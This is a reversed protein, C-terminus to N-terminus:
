TSSEEWSIAWARATALHKQLLEAAAQPQGALLAKTIQVKAALCAQEGLALRALLYALDGGCSALDATGPLGQALGLLEDECDALLGDLNPRKEGLLSVRVQRCYEYAPALVEAPLRVGLGAWAAIVAQQATLAAQRRGAYVEPSWLGYARCALFRQGYIACIGPRSWPCARRQAANLLFHEVLAVAQVSREEPPLSPLRALWALMELSALPPLLGCCHGQRACTTQPLRQYLRALTQPPTM